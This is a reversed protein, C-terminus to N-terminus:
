KLLLMKKSEVFEGAEVKYLYVGASVPKGNDNTANWITKHYGSVLEGNVLQKVKRGLVDYITIKV